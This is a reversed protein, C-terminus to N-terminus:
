RETRHPVGFEVVAWVWKIDVVRDSGTHEVYTGIWWETEPYRDLPKDARRGWITARRWRKGITTGTPISCSYEPLALLAQLSIVEEREVPANSCDGYASRTYVATM